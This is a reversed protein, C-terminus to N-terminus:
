QKGWQCFSMGLMDEIYPTVARAGGKKNYRKIRFSDRLIGLRLLNLAV